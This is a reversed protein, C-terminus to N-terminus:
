TQHVDAQGLRSVWDPDAEYLADGIDQQHCGRRRLEATLARAPMPETTKWIGGAVHPPTVTAVYGSEVRKILIAM